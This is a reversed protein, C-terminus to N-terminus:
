RVGNWGTGQYKQLEVGQTPDYEAAVTNSSIPLLSIDSENVTLTAENELLM